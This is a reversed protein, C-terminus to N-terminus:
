RKLMKLSKKAIIIIDKKDIGGIKFGLDYQEVEKLADNWGMNYCFKKLDEFKIM